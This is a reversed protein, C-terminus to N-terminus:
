IEIMYVLEKSSNSFQDIMEDDLAAKNFEFGVDLLGV